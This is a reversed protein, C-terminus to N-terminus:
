RFYWCKFKCVKYTSSANSQNLIFSQVVALPQFPPFGQKEIWYISYTVKLLSYHRYNESYDVILQFIYASPRIKLKSVFISRQKVFKLQSRQETPLIGIPFYIFFECCPPFFSSTKTSSYLNKLSSYFLFKYM